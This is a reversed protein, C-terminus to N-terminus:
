FYILFSKCIRKRFEKAERLNREITSERRLIDMMAKRVGIDQEEAIAKAMAENM